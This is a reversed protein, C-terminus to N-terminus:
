QHEKFYKTRLEPRDPKYGLSSNGDGFTHDVLSPIRYVVERNRQMISQAVHADVNKDFQPNSIVRKFEPDSLLEIAWSRHFVLCQAGWTKKGIKAGYWGYQLDKGNAYQQELVKSMRIPCYLSIAGAGPLMRNFRELDYCLIDYARAAWKIDDECVMLWKETTVAVLTELALVWNRLNGLKFPNSYYNCALPLVYGSDVITGPEAFIHVNRLFGAAAMSSISRTLTPEARPATIIASAIM